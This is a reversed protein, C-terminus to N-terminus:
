VSHTLFYCFMFNKGMVEGVILRNEFKKVSLSSLLNAVFYHKFIEGHRLGTSVSGQSIYLDSFHRCLSIYIAILSLDCPLIPFM